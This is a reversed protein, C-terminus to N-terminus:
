VTHCTRLDYADSDDDAEPDPDDDAVELLRVEDAELRALERLYEEENRRKLEDIYEKIKSMVNRVLNIISLDKAEVKAFSLEREM